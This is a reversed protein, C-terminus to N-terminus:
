MPGLAALSGRRLKKEFNKIKKNEWNKSKQQADAGMNATM